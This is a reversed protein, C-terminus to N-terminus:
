PGQAEGFWTTTGDSLLVGGPLLVAQIALDSPIDGTVPLRQWTLGDHSAWVGADTGGRLAVMRHGDGVLTGNPGSGCGEGTCGTPGLPPYTPLPRWDRGNASQWWLLVGPTALVGGTAILGNRAAVLATAGWSPATSALIVGSASVLHLPYPGTWASGDVSQYAVARYQDGSVRLAGVGTYGRSTGVIYGLARGGPLTGAPVARWRIGDVSTAAHTVSGAAVALLGAPGAALRPVARSQPPLGLDPGTHPTWSRGDPSTWSMLPLAPSYTPCASTCDWTGALLTLAVLGGSVEAMGVILLGPWFTNATNFPLAEWHAGDQSTWVPTSWGDSGVAIFGGRWRLVSRVLTLPDGSALKRWHIATWAADASPPVPTTFTTALAPPPAPSSAVPSPESTPVPTTSPQSAPSAAVGPTASATTSAVPLPSTTSGCGALATVGLVVALHLRIRM